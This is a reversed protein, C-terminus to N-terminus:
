RYLVVFNGIPERWVFNADLYAYLPEPLANMAGASIVAWKISDTEVRAQLLAVDSLYVGHWQVFKREAFFAVDKPALTTENSASLDRVTHAAAVIGQEGRNYLTGGPERVSRLVGISGGVILVVWTAIVLARRSWLPSEFILLLEGAVFVFLWPLLFIIYKVFGYAEAGLVAQALFGVCLLTPLLGRMSNSQCRRSWALHLTLLIASIILLLGIERSYFMTYRAIVSLNRYVWILNPQIGARAFNHLFPQSFPLGAIRCFIWFVPFFLVTGGFVSVLVPWPKPNRAAICTYALAGGLLSVGVGLSTMFALLICLGLGFDLRHCRMSRLFACTFWVAICPALAANYDVLVTGRISLHNLAFLISAGLMVLPASRPYIQRSLTAMGAILSLKVLTTYPYDWVHLM